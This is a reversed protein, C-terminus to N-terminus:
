DPRSLFVDVDEKPIEVPRKTGLDVLHYTARGTAFIKDKTAHRFSVDVTASAGEMAVVETDVLLKTGFVVPSIFSLTIASFVWTQNKKTYSDIPVEYCRSMQDIRAEVLFDLYSRSSMIGQMDFDSFRPTFESTFRRKMDNDEATVARAGEM